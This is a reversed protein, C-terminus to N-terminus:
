LLKGRGRAAAPRPQLWGGAAERGCHGRTSVRHEGYGRTAAAGSHCERRRHTAAGPGSPSSHWLSPPSGAAAYRAAPQRAHRPRRAAVSHEAARGAAALALACSTLRLSLHRTRRLRQGGESRKRGCSAGIVAKPVDPRLPQPARESAPEVQPSTDEETAALEDDTHISFPADKIPAARGRKQPMTIGNWPEVRGANEKKNERATGTEWAERVMEEEAAAGPAPDVFINFNGAAAAEVTPPAPAAAPRMAGTARQKTPRSAGPAAESKKLRNLAQRDKPVKAGRTEAAAPEPQAMSRKMMRHMFQKHANTLRNLPQAKMMLGQQYVKDAEKNKRKGELVAAWSEYFLTLEQGIRRDSLYQFIPEADSVMDAYAIWIRLYRADSAYRADDKFSRTCRELMDLLQTGGGTVFTDQQWRIYECWHALPDSDADPHALRYEFEQRKAEHADAAIPGEKLVASLADAKRGRRLPQANEKSNGLRRAHPAHRRHM